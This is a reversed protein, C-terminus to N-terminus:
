TLKSNEDLKKPSSWITDNLESFYIDEFFKNDHFFEGGTSGKKRATFVLLDGDKNIVPAYESFNSNIVGGLNESKIEKNIDNLIVKGYECMTVFNKTERKLTYGDKSTNLKKDFLKYYVIAKDFEQNFQYSQALYYLLEPI